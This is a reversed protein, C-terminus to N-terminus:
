SAPFFDPAAFSGNEDIRLAMEQADFHRSGIGRIQLSGLEQKLWDLLEKATERQQPSIAMVAAREDCPDLLMQTPAHLHHPPQDGHLVACWGLLRRAVVLLLARRSAELDQGPSPDDFTAQGPDGSPTAEGAIM